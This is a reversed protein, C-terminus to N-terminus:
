PYSSVLVSCDGESKASLVIEFHWHSHSMTVDTSAEKTTFVCEFLDVISKSTSTSTSHQANALLFSKKSDLTRLAKTHGCLPLTLHLQSTVPEGIGSGRVAVQATNGPLYIVALYDPATSDYPLFSDALVRTLNAYEANVPLHSALTLTRMSMVAKMNWSKSLNFKKRRGGPVVSENGRPLEADRFEEETLLISSTKGDASTKWYFGTLWTANSGHGYDDRALWHILQAGEIGDLSPTHVDSVRNRITFTDLVGGGIEVLAPSWFNVYTSGVKDPNRFTQVQLFGGSVLGEMTMQNAYQDDGRFSADRIRVCEDRPTPMTWKESIWSFSGPVEGPNGSQRIYNSHDNINKRYTWDNHGGKGDAESALWLPATNNMTSPDWNASKVALMPNPILKIARFRDKYTKWATENDDFEASGAARFGVEYVERVSAQLCHASYM